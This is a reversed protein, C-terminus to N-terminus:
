PEFNVSSLLTTAPNEASSASLDVFNAAVMEGLGGIALVVRLHRHTRKLESSHMVCGHLVSNGYEDASDDRYRKEFDALTDVFSSHPLNAGINSLM